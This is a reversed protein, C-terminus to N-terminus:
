NDALTFGCNRQSYANLRAIAVPADALRDVQAGAPQFARRSDAHEAVAALARTVQAAEALDAAVVRPAVTHAEDYLDAATRSSEVILPQLNAWGHVNEARQGATRD